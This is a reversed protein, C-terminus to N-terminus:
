SSALVIMRRVASEVKNASDVVKKVGAKALREDLTGLLPAIDGALDIRPSEGKLFHEVDAKYFRWQRGVKMGKIQGGRLWRYFTPRSTKLMAIAEQMDVLEGRAGSTGDGSREVGEATKREGGCAQRAATKM